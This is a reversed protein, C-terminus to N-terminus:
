PIELKALGDFIGPALVSIKNEQLYRRNVKLGSIAGKKSCISRAPLEEVHTFTSSHSSSIMLKAVCQRRVRCSIFQWSLFVSPYRANCANWSLCRGLCEKVWLAAFTTSWGDFKDTMVSWANSVVPSIKRGHSLAIIISPIVSDYMLSAANYLDTISSLVM